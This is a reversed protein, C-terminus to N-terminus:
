PKDALAARAKAIQELVREITALCVPDANLRKLDIFAGDLNDYADNSQFNNFDMQVPGPFLAERLKAERAESAEARATLESAAAKYLAADTARAEKAEDRSRLLQVVVRINDRSELIALADVMEQETIDEM